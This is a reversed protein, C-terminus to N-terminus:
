AEVKIAATVWEDHMTHLTDFIQEKIDEPVLSWAKAYAPAAAFLVAYGEKCFGAVIEDGHPGNPNIIAFPTETDNIRRAVLPGTTHKSKLDANMM